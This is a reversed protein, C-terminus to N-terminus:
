RFWRSAHARSMPHLLLALLAAEFLFSVLNRQFVVWSLPLGSEHQLKLLARLALPSLSAAIGLHWGLRRGNAMLLGAAVYSLCALPAIVGGLGGYWRWTGYIDTRDFWDLIAFVGNIYLLWTAVQLTQPLMQDFWKRWDLNRLPNQAM